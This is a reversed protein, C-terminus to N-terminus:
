SELESRKIGKEKIEARVRKYEKLKEAMLDSSDKRLLEELKKDPAIATRKRAQALVMETEVKAMQELEADTMIALRLRAQIIARRAEKSRGDYKILDRVTMILHREGVSHCKDLLQRYRDEAESTWYKHVGREM